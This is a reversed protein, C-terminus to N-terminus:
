DYVQDAVQHCISFDPKSGCVISKPSVCSLENTGIQNAREQVLQAIEKLSAPDDSRLQQGSVSGNFYAYPGFLHLEAISRGSVKSCPWCSSWM